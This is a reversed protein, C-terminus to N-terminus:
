RAHCCRDFRRQIGVELYWLWLDHRRQREAPDPTEVLTDAEARMRQIRAVIPAFSDLVFM